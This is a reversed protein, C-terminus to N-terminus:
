VRDSCSGRGFYVVGPLVGTLGSLAGGLVVGLSLGTSPIVGMLIATIAGESKIWTSFSRGSESWGGDDALVTRTLVAVGITSLLILFSRAAPVTKNNMYFAIGAAGIVLIWMYYGFYLSPIIAVVFGISLGSIVANSKLADMTIPNKGARFIRQFDSWGVRVIMRLLGSQDALGCLAFIALQVCVLSRSCVAALTLALAAGIWLVPQTQSGGQQISQSILNPAKGIGSLTKWLSGSIAQPVLMGTIIWFLTSGILNYGPLALIYRFVPHEPNFGENVYVLLWTHIVWTALSVAIMTPIQKPLSLIMSKIMLKLLQLLTQPGPSAPSAARPLPAATPHAYAPQAAARVVAPQQSGPQAAPEWAAGNWRMWGGDSESIRWWCGSGDQVQLQSVEASYQPETIQGAALRSRLQQYASTAQQFDM